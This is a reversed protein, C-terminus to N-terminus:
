WSSLDIGSDTGGHLCHQIKQASRGFHAIYRKTKLLMSPPSPTPNLVGGGGGGAVTIAFYNTRARNVYLFRINNQKTKKTNGRSDWPVQGGNNIWEICM